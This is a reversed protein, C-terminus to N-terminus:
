TDGLYDSHVNIIGNPFGLFVDNSKIQIHASM